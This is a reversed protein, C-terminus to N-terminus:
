ANAQVSIDLADHDKLAPSIYRGTFVSLAKDIAAMNEDFKVLEAGQFFRRSKSIDYALSEQLEAVADYEGAPLGIGDSLQSLLVGVNSYPKGLSAFGRSTTDYTEKVVAWGATREQDSLNQGRLGRMFHIARMAQGAGQIKRTVPDATDAVHTRIDNLLLEKYTEPDNAFASSCKVIDDVNRSCAQAQMTMNLIADFDEPTVENMQPMWRRALSMTMFEEHPFIQRKVVAEMKFDDERAASQDDLWADFHELPQELRALVEDENVVGDELLSKFRQQRAIVQTMDLGYLRQSLLGFPLKLCERMQNERLMVATSLAFPVSGSGDQDLNEVQRVEDSPNHPIALIRGEHRDFYSVGHMKYLALASGVRELALPVPTNAEIPAHAMTLPVDPIDAGLDKFAGSAHVESYIHRKINQIQEEDADVLIDLQRSDIEFFQAQPDASQVIGRVRAYMDDILIDAQEMGAVSNLAHLGQIDLRMLTPTGEIRRIADSRNLRAQQPGIAHEADNAVEITDPLINKGPKIHGRKEFARTVAQAYTNTDYHGIQVVADVPPPKMSTKEAYINRHLLSMAEPLDDGSLGNIQAFAVINGTGANRAQQERAHALHLIGADKLFDEFEGRAATLAKGLQEESIDGSVIFSGEDGMPKCAYLIEPSLSQLKEHLLGWGVNMIQGTVTNGLAANMGKTNLFDTEILYSPTDSSAAYSFVAQRNALSTDMSFFPDIREQLAM